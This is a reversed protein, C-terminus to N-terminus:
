KEEVLKLFEKVNNIYKEELFAKADEITEFKIDNFPIYCGNGQFEAIIKNDEQAVYLKGCGPVICLQSNNFGKFWNFM